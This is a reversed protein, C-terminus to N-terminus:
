AAQTDTTESTAVPSPNKDEEIILAVTYAMVEMDSKARRIKSKLSRNASNKVVEIEFSKMKVAFLDEQKKRAAKAEEHMVQRERDGQIKKIVNLTNKELEQTSFTELIEKLDPNGVDTDSITATTVRGDEYHFEASLITRANNTWHPNKITRKM